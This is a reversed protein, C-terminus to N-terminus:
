QLLLIDVFSLFTTILCPQYLQVLDSGLKHKHKVSDITELNASFVFLPAMAVLHTLAQTPPAQALVIVFCAVCRM